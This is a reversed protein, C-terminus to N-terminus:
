NGKWYSQCVNCTYYVQTSNQLRYFVAERKSPDKYSECKKNICEYNRTYPLVNMYSKNKLKDINVYKNSTRLSIKNFILTGSEIPESYLCNKCIYFGGIIKESQKTLEENESSSENSLSTPTKENIKVQQTQTKSIDLINDCNPCFSM